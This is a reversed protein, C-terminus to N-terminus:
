GRGKSLGIDTLREVTDRLVTRKLDDKFIQKQFFQPLDPHGKL